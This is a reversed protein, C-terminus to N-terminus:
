AGNLRKSSPSTPRPKSHWKSWPNTATTCEPARLRTSRWAGKQTALRPWPKPVQASRTRLASTTWPKWTCTRSASTFSPPTASASSSSACTPQASSRWRSLHRVCRHTSPLYPMTLMMVLTVVTSGCSVVNVLRMCRFIFFFFVYGM